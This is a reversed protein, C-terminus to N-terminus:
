EGKLEAITARTLRMAERAQSNEVCDVCPLSIHCMCNEDPLDIFDLMAIEAESLAEMAKALKADLRMIAVRNALGRAELEEIRAAQHRVHKLVRDSKVIGLSIDEEINHYYDSM